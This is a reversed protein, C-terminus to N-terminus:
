RDGDHDHEVTTKRRPRDAWLLRRVSRGDEYVRVRHLKAGPLQSLVPQELREWISIAMNEATPMRQRFEPIELNLHRHDYVDVVETHM